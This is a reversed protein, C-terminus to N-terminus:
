RKRRTIFLGLLGALVLSFAGPEPVQHTQRDVPKPASSLRDVRSVNGCVTPVILCNSQECYVLGLERTGEWGSRDVPGRCVRGDGFHMDRLNGYDRGGAIRDRSIVAIDDYDHATVRAALRARALPPIDQYDYVAEAAPRTNRDRGPDQWSCTPKAAVAAVAAALTLLAVTM